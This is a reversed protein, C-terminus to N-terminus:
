NEKGGLAELLKPLYQELAERVIRSTPLDKGTRKYYAHQIERITDAHDIYGDFSMRKTRREPARNDIDDAITGVRETTRENAQESKDVSSKLTSRPFFPVGSMEQLLEGKNIESKKSM